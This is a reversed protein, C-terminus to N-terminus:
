LPLVAAGELALLRSIATIPRAEDTTKLLGDLRAPLFSRFPGLALRGKSDGQWGQRRCVLLPAAGAGMQIVRDGKDGEGQILPLPSLVQPAGGSM